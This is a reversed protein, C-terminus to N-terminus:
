VLHVPEPAGARVVVLPLDLLRPNEARPNERFARRRRNRMEVWVLDYVQDRELLVLLFFIRIFLQKVLVLFSDLLVEHDGLFLQFADSVNHIQLRRLLRLNLLLNWLACPTLPRRDVPWDM